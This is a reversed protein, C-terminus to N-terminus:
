ICNQGNKESAIKNIWDFLRTTDIPKEFYMTIRTSDIELKKITTFFTNESTCSTIAIPINVKQSRQTEILFEYGNKVPMDLDLLVAAIEDHEALNTLAEEGNCAEIITYNKGLMIKLLQRCLNDDDVILLTIKPTM